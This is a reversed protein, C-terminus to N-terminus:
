EPSVIELAKKPNPNALDYWSEDKGPSTRPDFVLELWEGMTLPAIGAPGRRQSLERNNWEFDPGSWDYPVAHAAEKWLDLGNIPDVLQDLEDGTKGLLRAWLRM